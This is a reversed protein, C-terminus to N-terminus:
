YDPARGQGGFYIHFDQMVIICPSNYKEIFELAKLPQRTDGGSQSSVDIMGTTVRWILVERATKILAVDQAISRIVSTARDEEWTQIYLYPFRAKLLNAPLTSSNSPRRPTDPTGPTSPMGSTNVTGPTGSRGPVTM